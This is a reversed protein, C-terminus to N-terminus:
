EEAARVWELYDASALAPLAIIEPTQYPHAQRVADEIAEQRALDGKMRLLWEEEAQMEGQWRYRSMVRSTQICAVLGAELLPQAFAGVEAANWAGPLTTEVVVLGAEM